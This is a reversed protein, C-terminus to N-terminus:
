EEEFLADIVAQRQKKITKFKKFNIKLDYEKSLKKLKPLKMENVEDETIEDEDEGEEEEEEEEEEEDEGDEDEGEEDEEEGEEDEGEEEEEDEDEGEEGEELLEIFSINTFDESQTVQVLVELGVAEEIVEGLDEPDDPVELELAELDGMAYDLNDDTDLGAYKHFKRGEFDGDIVSLGYNIQLRGSSKANEIVASEIRCEHEGLPANAGSQTPTVKSWRKKLSKLNSAVSKGKGKSKGKGSAKKSSKKKAM